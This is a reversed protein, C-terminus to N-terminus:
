GLAGCVFWDCLEMERPTLGDGENGLLFATPGKFPAAALAHPTNGLAGTAAPQPRDHPRRRRRGGAGPGTLRGTSLVWISLDDITDAHAIPM